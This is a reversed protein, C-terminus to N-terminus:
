RSFRAFVDGVLPRVDDLAPGWAPRPFLVWRVSELRGSKGRVGRAAGYELCVAYRLRSGVEARWATGSRTVRWTVSRLLDGTDPAPAEGPASARHTPRGRLTVRVTRKGRKVLKTRVEPYVRGTAPSNRMRLKVANAYETALAAMVRPMKAEMASTVAGRGNFKVDFEALMPAGAM